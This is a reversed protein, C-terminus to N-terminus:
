GFNKFWSIIIDGENSDIGKLSIATGGRSSAILVVIAKLNKRKQLPNQMLEMAQIKPRKVLFTNLGLIRYRISLQEDNIKLGADNYQKMGWLFAAIPLLLAIFGYNLFIIIPIVMILAPITLIMRYRNQAAKSLPIFSKELNYEPLFADLFPTLDTKPILPFILTDHSAKDGYGASVVHITALGFPQRLIGEVIKVAQIRNLPISIQKKEILGRQVLLRDELRTISFGGISIITGVISLIWALLLLITIGLIYVFISEGAYSVLYKGIRTYIDEDPIYQNVQSLFALGGVLVVGIGNSTTAAIILERYSLKKVLKNELETNEIINNTQNSLKLQNQLKLAQEKTIAPLSAEAESSGGATQVELKVLGFIRQVVGASVQISQIREIPIYTKRRAFVGQEIRLEDNYVVYHFRLWSLISMTIYLGIGILVIIILWKKSLPTTAIIIFPGILIQIFKYINQILNEIVAAPHLRELKSM